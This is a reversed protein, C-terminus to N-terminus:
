WFGVHLLLELKNPRRRTIDRELFKYHCFQQVWAIALNDVIAEFLNVINEGLMAHWKHHVTKALNCTPMSADEELMM